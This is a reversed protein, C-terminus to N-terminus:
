YQSYYEKYEECLEQRKRLTKQSALEKHQAQVKRRARTISEFSPLGLEKHGLFVYSFKMNLIDPCLQYYYEVILEFDDNRTKPNKTLIKKVLEEIMIQNKKLKTGGKKMLKNILSIM